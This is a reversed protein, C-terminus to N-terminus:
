REVGTMVNREIRKYGYIEEPAPEKKGEERVSNYALHIQQVPAKLIESANDLADKELEQFYPDDDFSDRELSQRSFRGIDEVRKGFGEFSVCLTLDFAGALKRLIKISWSSYNINEMVSIRPQLMGAHDALETQSWGRQERLVKMQTAISANLFDDVYGNRYEKDKFAQKLTAALDNM